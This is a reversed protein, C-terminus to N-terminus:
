FKKGYKRIREKEEDSVRRKEGQSIIEVNCKNGRNDYKGELVSIFKDERLIFDIDARWKGSRGTCFDSAELKNFVELIEEESFKKLINAIAKSRKPNLRQCKPLSVCISNFTDVFWQGQERKRVELVEKNNFTNNDTFLEQQKTNDRINSITDSSCNKASPRQSVAFNQVQDYKLAECKETIAYYSKSGRLNENHITKVTLLGLDKLKNLYNILSRNSINLIPLDTLIRDHQLWVYSIGNDVVHQMTPSAIMDWVYDILLLDEVTLNYELAKEQNFGFLEFKM